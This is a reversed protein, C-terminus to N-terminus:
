QDRGGVARGTGAELMEAAASSEIGEESGKEVVGEIETGREAVSVIRRGVRGMGKDLENECKCMNECVPIEDLGVSGPGDDAESGQIRKQYKYGSSDGIRGV